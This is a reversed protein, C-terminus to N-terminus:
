SVEVVLGSDALAALAMGIDDPPMECAGLQASLDDVTRPEDLALWVLVAGGLLDRAGDIRGGVVRVLVRDPALRWVVGPVRAFRVTSM